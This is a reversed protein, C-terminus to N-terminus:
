VKEAEARGLLGNPRILLILIIAGFAVADVMSASGYAGALSELLGVLLGGILAGSISGIGGVVAAAFSKIMASRGMVASISDYYVGTMVGSLAAIVAASFFVVAIVRYVPIGMLLAFEQNHSIARIKLGFGTHYIVGYLVAMIGLATLLIFLQVSGISLGAFHILHNDFRWPFPLTESGWLMRGANELIMSAGLSGLLPAMLNRRMVPRYAAYYVALGILGTLLAAILAAPLVSMGAVNILTACILAGAMFIEGHAFNMMRLIGFIMNFGLATLAYLSGVALGNLLIDSLM